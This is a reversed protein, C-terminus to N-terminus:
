SRSPTRRTTARQSSFKHFRCPLCRDCCLRQVERFHPLTEGIRRQAARCPRDRLPCPANLSHEAVSGSHLCAFHDPRHLSGVAFTVSVSARSMAPGRLRLDGRWMVKEVYPVPASVRVRQSQIATIVIARNGLCLKNRGLDSDISGLEIVPMDSNQVVCAILYKLCRNPEFRRNGSPMSPLAIPRRGDHRAKAACGFSLWTRASFRGDALSTGLM